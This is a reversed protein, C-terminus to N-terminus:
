NVPHCLRHFEGRQCKKRADLFLEWHSAVYCRLEKSSKNALHGVGRRTDVRVATVVNNWWNLPEIRASHAMQERQNLYRYNEGLEDNVNVMELPSAPHVTIQFTAGAIKLAKPYRPPVLRM